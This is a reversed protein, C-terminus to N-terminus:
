NCFQLSIEVAGGTGSKLTNLESITMDYGLGFKWNKYGLSARPILADNLRLFLGLEVSLKPSSGDSITEEEQVDFIYSGGVVLANLAGQNYWVISPEFFQQHHNTKIRASAHVTGKIAKLSAKNKVFSENVQNLYNLYVGLEWKLDPPLSKKTKKEWELVAGAGVSVGGTTNLVLPSPYISTTFVGNENFQSGWLQNETSFSHQCYSGKMGFSLSFAKNLALRSALSLAVQNQQYRLQGAYDSYFALGLAFEAGKRRSKKQKLQVDVGAYTTKYGYKLKNWQQRHILLANVKGQHGTLAPNMWFGSSTQPFFHIDQSYSSTKILLLVLLLLSKYIKM